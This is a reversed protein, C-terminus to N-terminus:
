VGVGLAVELAALDNPAMDRYLACAFRAIRAPDPGPAARVAAAWDRVFKVSAQRGTASGRELLLGFEGHRLQGPVFAQVLTWSALGRALLGAVLAAFEDTSWCHVHISRRRHLEFREADLRLPNHWERVADPHIPPQYYIASCFEKIEADSVSTVGREYKALLVALPTPQRVADFTMTRDPVVLALRGGPRLVREFERLVAVPNAVHEILHSGIVGDLTGDPFPRMGDVDLHINFDAQRGPPSGALEPWNRDRGGEVSRDAFRVRADPGVPFPESGPGVEIVDGSMARGIAIRPDEGM